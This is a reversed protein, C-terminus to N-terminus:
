EFRIKKNKRQDASKAAAAGDADRKAKDRLREIHKSPDNDEEESAWELVLHRGYLHTRSLANMATLAEKGTLFEIFAFGRHSGDFKKPLRVKKLQGFTGFLKLLETRTAQFPVNKVMIKTPPKKGIATTAKSRSSKQDTSSSIALQLSHGDIFKGQLMKIAKKALEHSALEVFGYGMSLSRSEAETTLSGNRAPAVKRPIRVSLINKGVQKEFVDQLITETTEFNLNKVYLTSSINDGSGENDNDDLSNSNRDNNTMSQDENTTDTRTTTTTTTTTNSSGSQSSVSKNTSDKHDKKAQLPAWELYIPVHKFRRYALKRFARKADTSHGYEIMAITRSPPLLINMPEQGVHFLKALEELRTDFPLNKVLIATKSRKTNTMATEAKNNNADNASVLADMDVGHQRFYERNEEIIQTEGLALRVAADGSSLKDKVGLIDGKRLGLREALNDVVADGRVFSASWGQSAEGTAVGKTEKEKRALEQKQKWTLNKSDGDNNETSQPPPRAQLIHLLRGQFDVKDLQNTAEMADVASEFSIFAYGKNRKQDDVPIHCEVLRGFTSFYKELEEETTEFALNRVFLRTKSVGTAVALQQEDDDDDDDDVRGDEINNQDQDLCDSSKQSTESHAMDKNEDHDMKKIKDDDDDSDSGSSSSSRSSTSSSSDSDDGSGEEELDDVKKTKSILFDMDSIVNTTTTKKVEDTSKKANKDDDDDSEEDSSSSSSSSSSSDVDVENNNNSNPIKKMEEVEVEMGGGQDEATDNSWFKSKKNGAGMLNLFEEVKRDAVVKKDKDANNNNDTTKNNNDNNDADADIVKKNKENDNDNDNRKATAAEVSIRSMNLYTRHFTEIVHLAQEPQRFGVFAVKRSKGKSNKLIKCDTIQLIKRQNTNNDDDDDDDDVTEKSGQKQSRCRKEDENLLFEKLDHETTKPPLNKICVRTKSVIPELMMAM